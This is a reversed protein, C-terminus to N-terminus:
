DKWRFAVKGGAVKKVKDERILYQILREAKGRKWGTLQILEDLTKEGSSLNERILEIDETRYLEKKTNKKMCNDCHGCETTNIEGFYHRLYVERCENSEAYQIMYDLKKLLVNRYHEVQTRDAPLKGTRPNILRVMPEEGIWQYAFLQDVDSLLKVAKLLGNRNVHLKEQLYPVDLYYMQRFAMPGFQRFLSDVFEGKKEEAQQIFNRLIEESVAFQIGLQPESRESMEIVSLRELIRLGSLVQPANSQARKAVAEVPVPEAYEHDSGTALNLEDCLADYLKQLTELDPYSKLIRSRAIDADQKKYMLVPYSEGGDRGARGAEQYYAELSYPMEYHIVFRCDPKDIGMGFANTATVVPVEGSVWDKQVQSRTEPPLGAHYPKTLIGKRTLAHAWHECDKRTSAYVIGSGKKAARVAAQMFEDKKRESYHVWWQLNPRTFGMAIVEPKDFQLNSLIDERVEPTATATLAIWRTEDPLSQLEERIHRYSPRFDHGWESICHAEDIAVLSVKLNPLESKWLTTKLREPAIYLLKYMGNRANVLRQEAEFSPITSNIFTARIGAKVLQDVQDQMLAVLPSIVITLGELVTAPVQYCLSKGGGTPFLVLTDKGELVSQVAKDQGARFDDFGWHKKLSQKTKEFLESL